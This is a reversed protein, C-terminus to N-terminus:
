AYVDRMTVTQLSREGLLALLNTFVETVPPFNAHGIVIHGPLFWQTAFQMVQDPTILGSDSLSGYWMVPVTYGISAAVADTHANRYGYPPRYFPKPSVGYLGTLYDDNRQLESIIQSDSIETLAAHDFTHNGIVVQGSQVLPKLLDVNDSWSPYKGNAFFTLRIGTRTAMEAYARVVTTDAGDDVTWAMYNGPIPLKSVPTGPPPFPATPFVLPTPTPAPVPRPTPSPTPFKTVHPSPATIPTRQVACGALALLGVGAAGSM